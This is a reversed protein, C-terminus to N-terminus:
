AYDGRKGTTMTVIGLVNLMMCSEWDIGVLVINHQGYISLFRESSAATMFRHRQVSPERKCEDSLYISLYIAKTCYCYLFHQFFIPSFTIYSIAYYDLGRDNM